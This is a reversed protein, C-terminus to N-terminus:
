SGGIVGNTKTAISASTTGVETPQEKTMVPNKTDQLFKMDVIKKRGEGTFVEKRVFSFWAVYRFEMRVDYMVFKGRRQIEDILTYFTERVAPTGDFSGDAEAKDSNRDLIRTRLMIGKSAVRNMEDYAKHRDAPDITHICDFAAFVDFSNDAFGSLDCLDKRQCFEKVEPDLHEIAYKSVDVGFAAYGRRRAEKVEFGKACCGILIRDMEFRKFQQEMYTMKRKAHQEIRKWNYGDQMFGGRVGEEYYAKDFLEPSYEKGKM